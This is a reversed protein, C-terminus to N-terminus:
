HYLGGVISLIWATLLGAYIGIVNGMVGMLLGVPALSKKYVTAVIPASVVGGINAQSSTAILFMPARLLRGGIFLIIAHFLIWVIGVIIYIPLDTVQMINAKAGITGLLIYLFINGVHSAGANELDSLKTFSLLIGIASVVIITWGFSTLISGIDPLWEGIKLSIYGGVLGVTVITLLDNFSTPRKNNSTNMQINLKKIISTDANNWRDITDQHGSIFIVVGMWGYGVLTDIVIMNGFLDDSTGISKGVAVMNASGGIWSGSLAGLGMWADEPLLSGFILLSLSGGIIIGLTGFLMTGIAKPGLATMARINSSLLLLILAPPLLHRTTWGYLVSDNPIIGISTSIMPLFYVWIVPPMYKFLKTLSPQSRLYYIVGILFIIYVFIANPDKIM